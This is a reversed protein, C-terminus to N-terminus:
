DVKAIKELSHPMEGDTVVEVGYREQLAIMGDVARDEVRKFDLTGLTGAAWRKRADKLYAPRLMSGIVEARYDIGM